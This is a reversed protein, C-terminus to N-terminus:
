LFLSEDGEFMDGSGEGSGEPTTTIPAQTTSTAFSGCNTKLCDDLLEWANDRCLQELAPDAAVGDCRHHEQIYRHECSDICHCTSNCEKHADNADHVCKQHESHDTIENCKLKDEHHKDNCDIHCQNCPDKCINHKEDAEARCQNYAENLEDLPDYLPACMELDAEHIKDCEWSCINHSRAKAHIAVILGVFLKM